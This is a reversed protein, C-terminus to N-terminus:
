IRKGAAAGLGAVRALRREDDLSCQKELASMRKASVIVVAMKSPTAISGIIQQPTAAVAESPEQMIYNAAAAVGLAVIFVAEFNKLVNM